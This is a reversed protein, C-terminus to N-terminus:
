WYCGNEVLKYQAPAESPLPRVWYENFLESVDPEADWRSGKIGFLIQVAGGLHIAQRGSRKIFAGLSLGYAGAGIIAVDFDIKDIQDCMSDLAEFWNGFPVPIGAYSQVPCLNILEFEPLIREDQFLHKRQHYQSEISAVFPHIVLVKRGKLVESWPNQHFYPELDKLRVTTAQPYFDQVESETELWSGLVDIDPCDQLIRQAFRSLMDATPPFFGAMECLPKTVGEDWWFYSKRNRLFDLYKSAFSKPEVIHLYTLVCALENFGFRCILCSRPQSLVEKIHDSAAQRTYDFSSDTRLPFRPKSRSAKQYFGKSRKIASILNPNM